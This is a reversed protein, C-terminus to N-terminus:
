CGVQAQNFHSSLFASLHCQQNSCFHPSIQIGSAIEILQLCEVLSDIHIQWLFNTCLHTCIDSFTKRAIHLLTDSNDWMLQVWSASQWSPETKSNVSYRVRYGRWIEQGHCSCVNHIKYVEVSYWRQLILNGSFCFDPPRCRRQPENSIVGAICPTLEPSLSFTSAFIFSSLIATTAFFSGRTTLNPSVKYSFCPCWSWRCPKILLLSLSTALNRKDTLACM